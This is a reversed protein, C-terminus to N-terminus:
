FARRARRDEGVILRSDNDPSCRRIWSAIMDGSRDARRAIKKFVLLRVLNKGGAGISPLRERPRAGTRVVFRGKDLDPDAHALARRLITTVMVITKGSDKNLVKCSDLSARRPNAPRSRRDARGCLLLHRIRCSRRLRHHWASKKGCAKASHHKVRDALSFRRGAPHVRPERGQAASNTLFLPRECM